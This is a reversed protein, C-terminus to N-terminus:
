DSHVRSEESSSEATSEVFITQLLLLCCEIPMGRPPKHKRALEMAEDSTESAFVKVGVKQVLYRKM